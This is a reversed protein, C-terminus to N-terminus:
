DDDIGHELEVLTQIHSALNAACTDPDLWLGPAAHSCARFVAIPHIPGSEAVIAAAAMDDTLVHLTWAAARREDAESIFLDTM